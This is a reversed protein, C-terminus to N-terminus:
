KKNTNAFTKNTKAQLEELEVELRDIAEESEKRQSSSYKYKKRKNNGKGVWVFDTLTNRLVRLILNIHQIRYETSMRM